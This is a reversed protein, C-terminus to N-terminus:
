EMKVHGDSECVEYDTNIKLERGSLCQFVLIVEAESLLHKDLKEVNFLM